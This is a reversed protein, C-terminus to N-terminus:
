PSGDILRNRVPQVVNIGRLPHGDRRGEHLEPVLVGHLHVTFHKHRIFLVAKLVSILKGHEPGDRFTFSRGFHEELFNDTLLSDKEECVLSVKKHMLRVFFANGDPQERLRPVM